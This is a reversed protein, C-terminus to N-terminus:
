GISHPGERYLLLKGMQAGEDPPLRRHEAQGRLRVVRVAGPREEGLPGVSARVEGGPRDEQPIM